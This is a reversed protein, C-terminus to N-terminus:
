RSLGVDYFFLDGNTSALILQRSNVELGHVRASPPVRCRFRALLKGRSDFQLVAPGTHKLRNYPYVLAYWGSSDVAVDVLVLVKAPAGGAQDMKQQHAARAELAAELEPARLDLVHLTNRELDNVLAQASAPDVILLESPSLVEVLTGSRAWSSVRGLPHPGDFSVLSGDACVTAIKGGRVLIDFAGCAAPREWLLSGDAAYRSLFMTRPKWTLVAVGDETPRLGQASVAEGLPIAACLKGDPEVCFVARQGPAERSIVLLWFNGGSARMETVLVRKWLDAQGPAKWNLVRSPQLEVMAPAGGTQGPCPRVASLLFVVALLNGAALTLRPPLAFPVTM